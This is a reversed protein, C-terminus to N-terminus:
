HDIHVESVSWLVESSMADHDLVAALKSGYTVGVGERLLGLHTERALSVLRPTARVVGTVYLYILNLEAELKEMDNM